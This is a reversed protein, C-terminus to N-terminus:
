REGSRNIARLTICREMKHDRKSTGVETKVRIMDANCESGAKTAIFVVKMNNLDHITHELERDKQFSHTKHNVIKSREMTGTKIAIEM